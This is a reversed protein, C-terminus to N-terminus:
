ARRRNATLVELRPRAEEAMRRLLEERAALAAEDRTWPRAPRAVPRETSWQIPAIVPEGPHQARAMARWQEVLLPRSEWGSRCLRRVLSRVAQMMEM